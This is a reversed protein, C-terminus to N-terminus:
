LSFMKQPLWILLRFLQLIPIRIPQNIPYFLKQLFLLNSITILHKRFTQDLKNISQHFPTFFCPLFLALILVAWSDLLHFSLFILDQSHKFYPFLALRFIPWRSVTAKIGWRKAFGSWQVTIWLDLASVKWNTKFLTEAKFFLSQVVWLMHSGCVSVCVLCFLWEDDFAKLFGDSKIFVM